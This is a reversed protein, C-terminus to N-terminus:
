VSKYYVYYDNSNLFLTEDPQLRFTLSGIDEREISLTDAEEVKGNKWDDITPSGASGVIMVEVTISNKAVERQCKAEFESINNYPAIKSDFVKTFLTEVEEDSVRAVNIKKNM